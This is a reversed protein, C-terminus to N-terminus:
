SGSGTRAALVREYLEVIRRAVSAMSLHEVVHFRANSALRDRLSPNGEILDIAEALKHPNGPPVLLGNVGDVVFDDMIPLASTIVPLGSAMAEVVSLPMAEAFTPLVFFRASAYIAPLDEIPVQGVLRIRSTLGGNSIWKSVLTRLPGNGVIVLSSETHVQRLAQLLVDIGKRPILRGVFLGYPQALGYRGLIQGHDTGTPAFKHHDVGNPIHTVNGPHVLKHSVLADRCFTSLAIVHHMRRLVMASTAYAISVRTLREVLGRMVGMFPLPNHLTFILPIDKVYDAMLM